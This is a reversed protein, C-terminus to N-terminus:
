ETHTDYYRMQQMSRKGDKPSARKAPEEPDPFGYVANFDARM